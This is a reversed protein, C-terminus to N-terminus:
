PSASRVVERLARVHEIKIDMPCPSWGRSVAVDRESLLLWECEDCVGPLVRWEDSLPCGDESCYRLQPFLAGRLFKIEDPTYELHAFARKVLNQITPVDLHHPDLFITRHYAVQESVAVAVAGLRELAKKTNNAVCLRLLETPEMARVNAMRTLTRHYPPINQYQMSKSVRVHERRIPLGTEVDVYVSCCIAQVVARLDSTIEATTPTETRKNQLYHLSSWISFAYEAWPPAFPRGRKDIEQTPEARRVFLDHTAKSVGACAEQIYCLLEAAALGFEHAEWVVGREVLRIALNHADSESLIDPPTAIPLRDGSSVSRPVADPM